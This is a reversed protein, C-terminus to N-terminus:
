RLWSTGESDPTQWEASQPAAKILAILEGRQFGQSRAFKALENVRAVVAGRAPTGAVTIGRGRRFQLLGEDPLLRLTRLVAKTNVGLGTALGRALPM